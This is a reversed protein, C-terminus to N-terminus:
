PLRRYIRENPIVLEFSSSNPLRSIAEDRGLCLFGFRILSASFLRQVRTQMEPQFYMLLYRAVILHFHNFAQDSALSHEAFLVMRQLPKKLVASGDQAQFYDKLGSKGGSALYRENDAQTPLPIGAGAQLILSKSVATAYIQARNALGEEALLIALSYPGAGTASGPQWVRVSPYTRLVPVIEERLARYFRPDDFLPQDSTTLAQVTRQLCADDKKIAADLGAVSGVDESMVMRRVRSLLLPRAYGRFDYGRGALTELLLELEVAQLEQEEWREIAVM